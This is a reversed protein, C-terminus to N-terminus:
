KVQNKINGELYSKINEITIQHLNFISKESKWAVNLTYIINKNTKSLESLKKDEDFDLILKINKENVIQILYDVDEFLKPSVTDIIISDKKILDLYKNKIIKETESNLKLHLTIIDSKKFIEDFEVVQFDSKKATRDWYLVNLNKAKGIEAVRTGINGLGIVGLTKNKIDFRELQRFVYNSVAETAYSPVNTVVIEKKIAYDVDCWEYGTAVIGLYKINPCFDLINKNVSYWCVIVADANEIRKIAEDDNKPLDDFIIVQNAIKFLEEKQKPNFENKDLVILKNIKM